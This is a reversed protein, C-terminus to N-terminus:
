ARAGPPWSLMAVVLWVFLALSLIWVLDAAPSWRPEVAPDEDTPRRRRRRPPPLPATRVWGYVAASLVLLFLAVVLLAVRRLTM